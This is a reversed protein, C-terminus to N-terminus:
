IGLSMHDAAVIVGRPLRTATLEELSQSTLHVLVLLADKRLASRLALAQQVTYHGSAAAVSELQTPLTAEVAVLDARSAAREVMGCPRTDSTYLLRSGSATVEVAYSEVAHEAPLPVLEVDGLRAPVGPKLSLVEAERLPRPLVAGAISELQGAVGGAGLLKPGRCGRAACDVALDFLGAWHDLHAHSVFVYDLDCCSLGRESLRQACGPGADLLIRSGGSEVLICSQARGPPSGAGGTGLFLVNM